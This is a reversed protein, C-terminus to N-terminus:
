PGSRGEKQRLQFQNLEPIGAGVDIYFEGDADIEALEGRDPTHPEPPNIENAQYYVWRAVGDDDRMPLGFSETLVRSGDQARSNHAVLLGCPFECTLFISRAADAKRWDAIYDLYNKGTPERGYRTSVLTGALHIRIMDRSVLEHIVYSSLVPGQSVPDFDRRFPILDQKPLSLWYDAFERSRTSRFEVAEFPDSATQM